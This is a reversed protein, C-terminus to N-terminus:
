KIEITKPKVEENNLKPIVVELVGDKSEAHVNEVDANEPLSFSREFSGYQSEIKYYDDANVEERVKREGSIVISNDKIDVHIDEKKIGPLDLEVHYAHKGERTNVSPMFNVDNFASNDSLFNDLFSNFEDFGRRFEQIERSPNYRTILM